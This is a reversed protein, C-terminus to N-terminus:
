RRKAEERTQAAQPLRCGAFAACERCFASRDCSGRRAMLSVTGLLTGTLLATRAVRGLFERRNATEEEKM